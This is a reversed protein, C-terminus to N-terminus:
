SNMHSSVFALDNDNFEPEREPHWMFAMWPYFLHKVAEISGDPAFAIPQLNNGLTVKTIGFNHYSNVERSTIGIKGDIKHRTKCHGDIKILSGKEHINILQLGRCIGFPVRVNRLRQPEPSSRRTSSNVVTRPTSAAHKQKLGYDQVSAASVASSRVATRVAM